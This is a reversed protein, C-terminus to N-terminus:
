RGHRPDFTRSRYEYLRTLLRAYGLASQTRSVLEQRESPTLTKTARAHDVIAAATDVDAFYAFLTPTLNSNSDYFYSARGIQAPPILALSGDIKAAQWAADAEKGLNWTYELHSLVEADSPNSNLVDLDSELERRSKDLQQLNFHLVNIDSSTEQHINKLAENASHRHQIFEVTQELGVAIILGIVITAIHIFFDRWTHVSQHPAHIDIM